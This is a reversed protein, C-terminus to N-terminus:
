VNEDNDADHYEMELEFEDDSTNTSIDFKDIIITKYRPSQVGLFEFVYKSKAMENLWQATHLDVQNTTVTNTIKNRKQKSYELEYKDTYAKIPNVFYTSQNDIGMDVTKTNVFNFSDIGGIENLFFITHNGKCKPVIDFRVPESLEVSSGGGNVFYVLVYGVQKDYVYEIDSLELNDYIDYRKVNDGSVEILQTTWETELFVGSNTYFDKKFCPHAIDVTSLFSLSVWEGYNYYRKENNTLFHVKTGGTYLYKDYDVSQFRTLTTPMITATGYPVTVMSSKSDYVQYATIDVDLPTRMSSYKFPSTINFSVTQNNNYKEMTINSTNEDINGQLMVVMKNPSLAKYSSYSGGVAIGSGSVSISYQISTDINARIVNSSQLTINFFIPNLKLCELLNLSVIGTTNFSDSSLTSATNGVIEKHYGDDNNADKITIKVNTPNTVTFTVYPATTTHSNNLLIFNDLSSALIKAM